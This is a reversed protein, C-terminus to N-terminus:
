VCDPCCVVTATSLCVGPSAKLACFFHKTRLTLLLFVTLAHTRLQRNVAVNNKKKVMNLTTWESQSRALFTHTQTHAHMNKVKRQFSQGAMLMFVERGFFVSQSLPLFM